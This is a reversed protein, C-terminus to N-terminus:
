SNGCVSPGASTLVFDLSDFSSFPSDLTDSDSSVDSAFVLADVLLDRHTHSGKRLVPIFYHCM